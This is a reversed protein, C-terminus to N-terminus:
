EGIEYGLSDLIAAPARGTAASMSQLLEAVTELVDPVSLDVEPSLGANKMADTVSRDIKMAGMTEGKPTQNIAM